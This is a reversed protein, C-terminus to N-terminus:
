VGVRGTARGFLRFSLWTIITLLQGDYYTYYAGALPPAQALQALVVGLMLVPVGQLLNLSFLVDRPQM